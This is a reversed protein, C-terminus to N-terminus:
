RRFHWVLGWFVIAILLVVGVHTWLLVLLCGRGPPSDGVIKKTRNAESLYVLNMILGVVYFGFWYLALTLFAPGVFSKTSHVARLVDLGVGPAQAPQQVYVQPGPQYPPPPPAPPPYAPPQHAPPPQYSPTAPPANLWRQLAPHSWDLQYYQSLGVKQGVRVSSRTIRQDEVFTGNTSGVDEIMLGAPTRELRAHHRSVNPVQVQLDNDAASGISFIDQSSQYSM